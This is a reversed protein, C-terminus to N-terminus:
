DVCGIIEQSSGLGQGSFDSKSGPGFLSSKQGTEIWTWLKRKDGRIMREIEERTKEAGRKKVRKKSSTSIVYSDRGEMKNLLELAAEEDIMEEHILYDIVDHLSVGEHDKL